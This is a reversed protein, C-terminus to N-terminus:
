RIRIVNTSYTVNTFTGSAQASLFVSHTIYYPGNPFEADAMPTLNDSSQSISVFEYHTVSATSAYLNTEIAGSRGTALGSLSMLQWVEGPNPRFITTITGSSSITANVVKNQPLPGASFNNAAMQLLVLRRYEDELGNVGESFMSQRLTNFEDQTLDSLELTKLDTYVRSKEPKDSFPLTM